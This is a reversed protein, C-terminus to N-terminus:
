FFFAQRFFTPIQLLIHLQCSQPHCFQLRLFFTGWGISLIRRTLRFSTYILRKGACSPSTHGGGWIFYNLKLSSSVHSGIDFRSHGSLMLSYSRTLFSFFRSLASFCILSSGFVLTHLILSRRFIDYCKIDLQCWCNWCNRSEFTTKFGLFDNPCRILM